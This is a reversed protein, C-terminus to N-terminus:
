VCGCVTVDRDCCKGGVGWFGVGKRFCVWGEMAAVTGGCGGLLM